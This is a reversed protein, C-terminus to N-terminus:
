VTSKQPAALIPYADAPLAPRHHGHDLHHRPRARLQGSKHYQGPLAGRGHHRLPMSHGFRLGCARCYNQKYGKAPLNKYLVETHIISHGHEAGTRRDRVCVAPMNICIAYGDTKLVSKCVLSHVCDPM